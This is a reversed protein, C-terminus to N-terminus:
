GPTRVGSGASRARAQRDPVDVENTSRIRQRLRGDHAEDYALFGLGVIAIVAFLYWQIAYALHPGESVEPPALLRPADAAPRPRQDVLEVYGGDVRYPLGRALQAVDIFRVQGAQPRGQGPGAAESIRVRGTVTVEGTPPAPAPPAQTSGTSPIWGRNVLVATRGAATGGSNGSGGSNGDPGAAVLPTLVDFGPEGDYPRYRVLVQHGGDYRGRITVRVWEHQPAVARGPALVSGVPRAPAEEGHVILANHARRAELRHLQWQALEVCLTALLAVTLALVLWRRSLLFRYV